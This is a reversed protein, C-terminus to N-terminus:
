KFDFVNQLDTVFKKEEDRVLAGFGSFKVKQSEYDLLCTKIKNIIDLVNAKAENFKFEAPIPLDEFFGASGRTGTIICCGMAAAERPLRDRGPHHGFDVYVKNSLLTQKIQDPNMDSLAIWNLGPSANILKSTYSYGKKPNFLVNDCRCVPVSGGELYDSNIYGSLYADVKVGHSLLFAKTRASQVMNFFNRAKINGLDLIDGDYDVSLYNDVSLWWIIKRIKKLNDLLYHVCVEPIVLLNREDDEIYNTPVPKYREFHHPVAPKSGLPYYAMFTTVGLEQLRFSLQHLTEAGGTSGDYPCLVYVKSDIYITPMRIHKLPGPITDKRKYHDAM